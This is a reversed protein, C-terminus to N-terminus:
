GHHTRSGDVGALRGRQDGERSVGIEPWTNSSRSRQGDGPSTDKGLISEFTPLLHEILNHRIAWDWIPDMKKWCVNYLFRKLPNPLGTSRELISGYSYFEKYSWWYGEELQSPTMRRPQFVAHRTDYRDWDRHLIRGEEELRAFLRTKPFPTLIHFTATEIKNQIAFEVTRSFVDADDEDFGYVFSGNIMIGADHFREIAEAYDYRWNQPKNASEMNAKSVSEFGLFLSRCGAKYAQELFGPTYAADISAAAQWVFDYERLLAFLKRAKRRNGMLNDDLFFVFKHEFTDLERKIESLPRFEYYNRGWFSQKYCFDCNYPCGRSAVVTNPVLYKSHNMLDRRALPVKSASRARHGHYYQRLRGCEFDQLMQPFVSEGPGLCVGDSHEAAEEPSTTPHIGGLLVKAGRARYHDSIEYARAASSIYVTMVVLDVEEDVFVDEVHEDRVILRYGDAPVLGAITLLSLPPFLSYKIQRFEQSMVEQLAPLVFLITRV